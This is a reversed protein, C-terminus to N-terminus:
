MFVSMFVYKYGTYDNTRNGIAKERKRLLYTLMSETSLKLEAMNKIELLEKINESHPKQLLM